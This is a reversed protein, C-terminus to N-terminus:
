QLIHNSKLKVPSSHTKWTALWFPRLAKYHPHSSPAPVWQSATSLGAINSMKLHQKYIPGVQRPCLSKLWKHQIFLCPMTLKSTWSNDRAKTKAVSEWLGAILRLQLVSLFLGNTIRLWWPLPSPWHTQFPFCFLLFSLDEMPHQPLVAQSLRQGAQWSCSATWPQHSAFHARWPRCPLLSSAGLTTHPVPPCAPVSAHGTQSASLTGALLYIPFPLVSDSCATGVWGAGQKSGHAGGHAHVVWGLEGRLGETM